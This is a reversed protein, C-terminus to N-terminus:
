SPYSTRISRMADYASRENGHRRQANEGKENGEDEEEDVAKNREAEGEIGAHQLRRRPRVEM